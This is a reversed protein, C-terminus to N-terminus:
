AAVATGTITRSQPPATTTATTKPPTTGTTSPHASVNAGPGTTVGPAAPGAPGAVGAPGGSPDPSAGAPPNGVPDQPGTAAVTGATAPGVTKYGVLLVTGLTVGMLGLLIRRMVTRRLRDPDSRIWTSKGSPCEFDTCSPSPPM